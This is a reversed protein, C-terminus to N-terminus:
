AGQSVSGILAGYPGAAGLASAAGAGGATEPTVALPIGGQAGEGLPVAAPGGATSVGAMGGPVETPAPGGGLYPSAQGFGGPMGSPGQLAYQQLVPSYPMLARSAPDQYFNALQQAYALNGAQARQYGQAWAPGIAWGIKQLWM